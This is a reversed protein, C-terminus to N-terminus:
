KGRRNYKNKGYHDHDVVVEFRGYPVNDLNV